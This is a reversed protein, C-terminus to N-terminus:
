TQMPCIDFAICMRRGQGNHPFTRHYGHSPFLTLLGPKPRILIQQVTQAAADGILGSPLGFALCGEEGAGNVVADPVEVYYGGSMWGNPHMHWKEFGDSETIVCWSRLLAKLPRADLWWHDHAACAAAHATAIGAIETLVASVAPTHGTAPHDVRWAKESSTGYRQFRMDPNGSIEQALTANFTGIDPCGSPAQMQTAYIFEPGGLLQTAAESQELLAFAMMRAAALRSHSVGKLKLMDTLTIVHQPKQQNLLEIALRKFANINAPNLKLANWLLPLAADHQGLRLHAKGLEAFVHSRDIDTLAFLFSSEIVQKANANDGTASRGFYATALAFKSALSQNADIDDTLIDITETFMDLTNYLRALRLMNRASDPNQRVAARLLALEANSTLKRAQEITIHTPETMARRIVCCM